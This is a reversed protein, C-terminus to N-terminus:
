GGKTYRASLEIPEPPEGVADLRDLRSTLVAAVEGHVSEFSGIERRAAGRAAASLTDPLLFEANMRHGARRTVARSWREPCTELVAQVATDFASEQKRAVPPAHNLLAAGAIPLLLTALDPQSSRWISLHDVFWLMAATGAEDSGLRELIERAVASDPPHSRWAIWQRLADAVVLRALGDAHGAAALLVQGRSAEPLNVVLDRLCYDLVEAPLTHPREILTALLGPLGIRQDTGHAAEVASMLDGRAVRLVEQFLTMRLSAPVEEWREGFLIPHFVPADQTMWESLIRQDRSGNGDPPTAAVTILLELIQDSTRVEAALRAAVETILGAMDQENAIRRELLVARSYPEGALAAAFAASDTLLEEQDRLLRWALYKTDRCFSRIVAAVREKPIEPVGVYRLVTREIRALDPWDCGSLLQGTAHDLVDEVMRSVAVPLAPRHIPGTLRWIAGLAAWAARRRRGTPATTESLLRAFVEGRRQAVFPSAENWTTWGLTVGQVHADQYPVADALWVEAVGALLFEAGANDAHGELYRLLADMRSPPSWPDALKKGISRLFADADTRGHTALSLALTVMPEVLDPGSGQMVSALAEQMEGVAWREPPAAAPARPGAGLLGWSAAISRLIELGRGATRTTLPGLERVAIFTGHYRIAEQARHGVLHEGLLEYACTDDGALISMRQPAKFAHRGPFGGPNAGEGRALALADEQLHRQRSPGLGLYAQLYAAALVPSVLRWGGGLSVTVGSGCDIPAAEARDLLRLGSDATDEILRNLAPLDMGIQEAVLAVPLEEAVDDRPEGAMLLVRALADAHPSSGGPVFDESLSELVLGSVADLGHSFYSEALGARGDLARVLTAFASPHWGRTRPGWRGEIWRALVDYSVRELHISHVPGTGAVDLRHRVAVESDVFSIVAHAASRRFLVRRLDPVVNRARQPLPPIVFAYERDDLRVEDNLAQIARGSAGVGLLVPTLAREALPHLFLSRVLADALSEQGLGPVGVIDINRVGRTLAARVDDIFTAPGVPIGEEVRRVVRGAPEWVIDGQSAALGYARAIAPHRGLLTTVYPGPVMESSPVATELWRRFDSASTSGKKEQLSLSTVVLWTRGPHNKFDTTLLRKLGAVTAVQKASVCWSRRSGTPAPWPGEYWADRGGDTVGFLTPNPTFVGFPRLEAFLLENVLCEFEQANLEPLRQAMVHGIVGHGSRGGNVGRWGGVIKDSGPWHRFPLRAPSLIRDM